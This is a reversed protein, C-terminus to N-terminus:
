IHAHDRLLVQICQIIEGPRKGFVESVEKIKVRHLFEKNAFITQRCTNLILIMSHIADFGQKLLPLTNFYNMQKILDDYDSRKAPAHWTMGDKNKM